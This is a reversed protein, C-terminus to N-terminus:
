EVQAARRVPRKEGRWERRRWERGERKGKRGKNNGLNETESTM